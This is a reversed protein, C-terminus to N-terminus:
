LKRGSYVWSSVLHVQERIEPGNQTTNERDKHFDSKQGKGAEKGDPECRNM